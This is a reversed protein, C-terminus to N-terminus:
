SMDNLIDRIVACLEYEEEDILWEMAVNLFNVYDSKYVVIVITSKKLTFLTIVDTNEKISKLILDIAYKFIKTGHKELFFNAVSHYDKSLYRKWDLTSYTKFTTHNLEM